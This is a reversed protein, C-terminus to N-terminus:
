KPEISWRKLCFKAIKETREVLKKKNFGSKEIEKALAKAAPFKSKKYYKVKEQPHKNSTKPNYEFLVLNGLCNISEKYDSYGKFGYKKLIKKIENEPVDNFLGRPFIHEIQIKKTDFYKKADLDKFKKNFKKNFEWLVYRVWPKGYVKQNLYWDVDDDNGKHSIYDKLFQGNKTLENEANDLIIKSVFNRYLDAIPDGRNVKYVRFDLVEILHLIEYNLIEKSNLNIIVPYTEASLQQFRLLKTLKYNKKRMNAKNVMKAFYRSWEAFINSFDLVFDHLQQKEEPNKLDECAPKTFSDIVAKASIDFDYEVWDENEDQTWVDYKKFAYYGFYHYFLRLFDDESLQELYKIHRRQGVTVIKSYGNFVDGFEGNIIDLLKEAENNDENNDLCKVVYYLLTSKVKDILTIDKGRDNLLQFSRVSMVRDHVVFELINSDVLSYYIKEIEKQKCDRLKNSFHNLAGRLMKQSLRTARCRQGSILKDFFDDDEKLGLEVRYKDGRKIYSNIITKQTKKSKIIKSIALLFLIITVIRQQGDIIEYVTFKRGVEEKREKTKYLTITGWYHDIDGNGGETVDKIDNYADEWNKKEWAYPRQYEPVRLLKSGFFDKLNDRLQANFM